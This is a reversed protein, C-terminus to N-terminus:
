HPLMSPVSNRHNGHDESFNPPAISNHSVSYSHRYKFYLLKQTRQNIDLFRALETDRGPLM